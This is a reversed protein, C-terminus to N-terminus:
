FSYILAIGGGYDPSSDAIGRSGFLDIATSRTLSWIVRARVELLESSYDSPATAGRVIVMPEINETLQYGLGGTYGFYNKLGFGDAKGQWIYQGESTLHVDGLWKTVAVGAGADFEGTGLGDSTNATPLKIFLSPRIEPVKTGEFIAIVGLRLIIDGLGSVASDSSGSASEGGPGGSGQKLFAGSSVSPGGKAVTTASQQSTRYLDTTVNANSQYLFPVEIGIDFRDSPSWTAILPMYVSRTTTDTGYKGAAFEAGFSLSATQPKDPSTSLAFATSSCIAALILVRFALKLYNM